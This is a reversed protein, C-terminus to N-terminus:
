SNNEIRAFDTAPNPYINFTNNEHNNIGVGSAIIKEVSLDDIYIGDYEVFGDNGYYIEVKM